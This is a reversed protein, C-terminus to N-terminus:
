EGAAGPMAPSERLRGILDAALRYAKRVEEIRRREVPGAAPLRATLASETEALWRDLTASQGGAQRMERLLRTVVMRRPDLPVDLPHAPTPEM